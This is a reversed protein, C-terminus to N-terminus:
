DDYLDIDFTRFGKEVVCTLNCKEPTGFKSNIEEYWKREAEPLNGPLFGPPMRM